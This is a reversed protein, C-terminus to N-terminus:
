RLDEEYCARKAQLAEDSERTKECCVDEKPLSAPGQLYVPM